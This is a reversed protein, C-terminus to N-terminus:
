GASKKASASRTAVRGRARSMSSRLGFRQRRQWSRSTSVSWPRTTWRTHSPRRRAMSSPAFRASSGNDLRILTRDPFHRWGEKDEGYVHVAGEAIQRRAKRLKATTNPV